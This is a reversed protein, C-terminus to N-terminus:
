RIVEKKENRYYQKKFVSMRINYVKLSQAREGQLPFWKELISELVSSARWTIPVMKRTYTRVSRIRTRTNTIQSLFEIAIYLSSNGDRTTSTAELRRWKAEWARRRWSRWCVYAASHWCGTHFETYSNSFYLNKKTLGSCMGREVWLHQIGTNFWYQNKGHQSSAYNLFRKSSFSSLTVSAFLISSCVVEVAVEVPVKVAGALFGEM